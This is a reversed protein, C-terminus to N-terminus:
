AGATEVEIALPLAQQVASPIPSCRCGEAVLARLRDPAVGAAAIRVHLTLDQPAASVPQGGAGAIGLMGRSDSRSRVSVELTDLEIGQAAASTVITTAACAGVGSRFLWGPTVRDGSGGFEGPMDTEISTGNAHSAVIRLGGQWRAVSVSDDHLGTEPRRRLVNRVRELAAAIEPMGM